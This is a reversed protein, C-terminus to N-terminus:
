RTGGIFAQSVKHLKTANSGKIMLFDGNRLVKKIKSQFLELSRVIEGRKNKKLFKYTESAKNGYVFTKDIDSNNILKSIKKHYIYSKKGLELMDGFLFYKKKGNKRIESFNEIAFKVSLPNANYSEDVLFFKKNFKNIKSIKGRGKLFHFDKFFNKAKYISLNLENMVAVCSLINMIYNKNSNNIKLFFKKGDIYFGMLFRSYNKEISSFKVDSKKHYGFSKIKIKNKQAIKKFFNFFKDDRNLIVTGNKKINYIIESKAKAIDKINRFNELHAESVNTIIGIHPKILRSLKHIENFKSMGVEFVGFDDDPSLNLISLPVGYQNNYSKPSFYTKSYKKLLNGLMTKVTTKGSSGTIAIFRSSSTQRKNQAFKNLFKMTNKVKIFKTKKFFKKSVISYNAGNKMAQNLFNHGDNNKGKIAIFLDNKKTTKSNISVGKFPYNNKSKLTKKLIIGNYKLDNLDQNLLINKAKFNKVIIKDSLFIKRKGLDQYKEHGKGAILIVEHPDSNKLAYIIAKKRNGIEKTTSNKLGKMIDNRIIKASESRPNDDTIYIKDCYKKAVQGMSRRKSKDREGGCGFVITIKKQFHERLSLIANKLADPTHAYDLFVKSHNPLTRILQLRGEVSEIKEIKKLIDEIKLGCVKSALIAMLLNKIQISGFM